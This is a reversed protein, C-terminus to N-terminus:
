CAEEKQMIIPLYRLRLHKPRTLSRLDAIFEEANAQKPFSYGHGYIPGDKAEIFDEEKSPVTIAGHCLALEMLSEAFSTKEIPSLGKLDEQLYVNPFFVCFVESGM